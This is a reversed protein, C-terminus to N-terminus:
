KLPRTTEWSSGQSHPLIATSSGAATRSRISSPNALPPWPSSLLWGCLYIPCPEPSQLVASPSLGLSDVWRSTSWRSSRWLSWPHSSSSSGSSWQLISLVLFLSAESHLGAASSRTPVWPPLSCPPRRTGSRLLVEECLLLGHTSHAIPCTSCAICFLMPLLFLDLSSLVPSGSLFSLSVVWVVTSCAPTVLLTQLLGRWRRWSRSAVHSQTPLWSRSRRVWRSCSCSPWPLSESWCSPRLPLPHSSFEATGTGLLFKDCPIGM